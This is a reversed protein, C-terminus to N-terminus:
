CYGKCLLEEKIKNKAKVELQRIRENSMRFVLSIEKTTLPEHIYRSWIAIVVKQYKIRYTQSIKTAVEILLDAESM